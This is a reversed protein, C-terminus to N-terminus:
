FYFLIDGKTSLQTELWARSIKSGKHPSLRGENKIAPTMGSFGIRGRWEVAKQLYDKSNKISIIFQQSM